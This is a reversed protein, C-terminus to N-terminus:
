EVGVVWKELCVVGNHFHHHCYRRMRKWWRRRRRGHLEVKIAVAGGRVDGCRGARLAKAVEEETGGCAGGSSVGRSGSGGCRFIFEFEVEGGMKM